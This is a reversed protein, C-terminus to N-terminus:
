LNQLCGIEFTKYVKILCMHELFIHHYKQYCQIEHESKFSLLSFYVINTYSISNSSSLALFKGSLAISRAPILKDQTGRITIKANVECSSIDLIRNTPIVGTADEESYYVAALFPVKALFSTNSWNFTNSNRNM